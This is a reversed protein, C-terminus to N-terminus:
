LAQAVHRDFPVEALIADEADLAALLRQLTEPRIRGREMLYVMEALSIASVAIYQRRMAAEAIFRKVTTSLRPDDFGYWIITHTDAVAAFM